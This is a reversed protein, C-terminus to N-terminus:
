KKGAHNVPCGGTTGKVAAAVANAHASREKEFDITNLTWASGLGWGAGLASFAYRSSPKGTQCWISLYSLYM